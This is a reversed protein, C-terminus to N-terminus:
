PSRKRINCGAPIRYTSNKGAIIVVIDVNYGEQALFYQTAANPLNLTLKGLIADLIAITSTLLSAVYTAPGAPYLQPDNPFTIQIDSATTLDVPDGNLEVGLNQSVDDGLYVDFASVCGQSLDM